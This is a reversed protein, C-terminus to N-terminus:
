AAAGAMIAQALREAGAEATDTNEIVVDCDRITFAGPIRAIRAAVDAADERARSSLREARIDAPADILIIKVDRYRARAAALITRSANIVVTRGAAVDIDIEAHVGYSLGHAHWTLAYGGTREIAEFTESTVASEEATGTPRTVDRSAFVIGPNGALLGRTLRLLTDKGSGSPGVILVVRGEGIRDQGTGMQQVSADTGDHQKDAREQDTAM